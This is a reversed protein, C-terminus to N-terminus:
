SQIHYLLLYSNPQRLAVSTPLLRVDADNCLFWLPSDPSKIIAYYHGGNISHGAHCIVACLTYKNTSADIHKAHTYPTINLEPPYSIPSNNKSLTYGNSMFLSPTMIFRKFEFILVTSTTLLSKSLVSTNKSKCNDCVYDALPESKFYQALCSELSISGGATHVPLDIVKIPSINHLKHNCHICTVTVLYTSDFIKTFVSYATGYEKQYQAIFLAQIAPDLVPHQFTPIQHQELPISLSTHLLELLYLLCEHPDGQEGSFLNAWAFSGANFRLLIFLNTINIHAPQSIHQALRRMIITWDLYIYTAIPNKSLMTLIIREDTSLPTEKLHMACMGPIQSLKTGRLLHFKTLTDKLLDTRESTSQLLTQIAPLAALAQLASNLYCQNGSNSIGTHMHMQVHLPVIPVTAAAAAAAADVDDRGLLTTSASTAAM